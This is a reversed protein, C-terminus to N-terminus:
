KNCIFPDTCIRGTILGELTTQKTHIKWACRPCPIFGSGGCVRIQMRTHSRRVAAKNAGHCVIYRMFYQICCKPYGYYKGLSVKSNPHFGLKYQEFAKAKAKSRTIVM